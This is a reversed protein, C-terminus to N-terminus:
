EKEPLAWRHIGKPTTYISGINEEGMEPGIVCVRGRPIALVEFVETVGTRFEVWGEVGGTNLDIVLAGARLKLGSNTLPLDGFVATERAQSLGVIAYNGLFSLGRGYGPLRAIITLDGTKRDVTCLTGAGSNIVYLTGNHIRPSHPMALGRVLIRGSEVEILCGGGAKNARWGSRGATEGLATVYAPRDDEFALGNLHCQDFEPGDPIFPPKWIPEFSYVASTKALCSFMTNVFVVDQGSWALDHAMVKNTFRSTRPIFVVHFPEKAIDLQYNRVAGFLVVERLTGVALGGQNWAMGMPKPLYTFTVGCTGDGRPWISALGNGQYTSIVLSAKHATLFDGLRGGYAVEGKQLESFKAHRAKTTGVGKGEAAAGVASNEDRDLTM